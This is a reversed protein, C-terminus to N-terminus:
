AIYSKLLESLKEQLTELDKSKIKRATLTLSDKKVEIFINKSFAVRTASKALRGKENLIKDVLATIKKEGIGLAIKDAISIIANKEKEGKQCISKITASSRASVNRMDKVAEWVEKPVEAFSLFNDFVSRNIGLREYLTKKTVREKQLLSYYFMGKSYDSVKEKENESVLCSIAQEFNLKRIISDIPINKLKCALWRRYGAIVVYKVATNDKARFIDNVEVIIIPQAQGKSKISTSLAEIDGLEFEQRDRFEWNGIEHPDKKVVREASETKKTILDLDAQTQQMKSVINSLFDTSM